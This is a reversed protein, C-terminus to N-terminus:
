EQQTNKQKTKLELWEGDGKQMYVHPVRDEDVEIRMAQFTQKVANTKGAIYAIMTALVFLTVLIFIRIVM